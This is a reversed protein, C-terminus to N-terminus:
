RKTALVVYLLFSFCVCLCVVLSLLELFRCFYIAIHATLLYCYQCFHGCARILLRQSGGRGRARRSPKDETQRQVHWPLRCTTQQHRRQSCCTKVHGQACDVNRRSREQVDERSAQIQCKRRGQRKTDASQPFGEQEGHISRSSCRRPIRNAEVGHVHAQYATDVASDWWRKTRLHRSAKVQVRRARQELALEIALRQQSGLENIIVDLMTKTTAADSQMRLAHLEGDMGVLDFRLYSNYDARRGELQEFVDSTQQENSRNTHHDHQMHNFFELSSPREPKFHRQAREGAATSQQDRQSSRPRDLEYKYRVHVHARNATHVNRRRSGQRRWSNCWM